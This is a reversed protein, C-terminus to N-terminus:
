EGGRRSSRHADRTGGAQGGGEDAQLRPQPFAGNVHNPSRPAAVACAIWTSVPMDEGGRLIHPPERTARQEQEAAHAAARRQMRLENQHHSGSTRATLAGGVAATAEATLPADSENADRDAGAEEDGSSCCLALSDEAPRDEDDGGSGGSGGGLPKPGEEPGKEAEALGGARGLPSDCDDLVM